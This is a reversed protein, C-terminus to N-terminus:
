ASAHDFGFEEVTFADLLTEITKTEVDQVFAVAQAPRIQIGEFILSSNTAGVRDYTEVIHRGTDNALFMRLYKRSAGNANGEFGIPPCYVLFGSVDAFQLHGRFGM